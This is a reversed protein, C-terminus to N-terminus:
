DDRAEKEMINIQRLDSLLDSFQRFMKDSSFNQARVFANQSIQNYLRENQDLTLLYQTLTASAKLSGRPSRLFTQTLNILFGSKEHEILEPLAGVKSAVVPIGRAMAELVAIGFSEPAKTPYVFVSIQSFFEDLDNVFGLLKIQEEQGSHDVLRRIQGTEQGEGAIVVKWNSHKKLTPLINQLFDFVGKEPALRSLLGIRLLGEGGRRVKLPPSPPHHVTASPYVVKINGEPVGFKVFEQKAFNSVTILQVQKALRLYRFRLPNLKLWRGPIKHELWIVRNGSKQALRPTLVLKETLSQCFFIRPQPIEQLLKKIRHYAILYTIPWLALATKGVPEFGIFVRRRPLDNKEFLRLLKDDSTYLKIQQGQTQFYKALKLTQFEAGGLSSELPFKCFVLM